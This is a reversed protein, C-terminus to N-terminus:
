RGSREPDTHRACTALLPIGVAAVALTPRLGLCSTLVPAVLAGIVMAATMLADLVGFGPAVLSGPLLRGLASIVLVDAALVSAGLGCCAMLAVPLAGTAALTGVAAGAIILPLLPRALPIPRLLAVFAAFAGVGSAFSLL